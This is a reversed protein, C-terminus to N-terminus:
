TADLSRIEKAVSEVAGTLGMRQRGVESRREREHPDRLLRVVADAALEWNEVGILAEGLLRQQQDMFRRTYQAGPVPFAVVPKGRGAAQENATGALGVAVTASELASGYDRTLLVSMRGSWLHEGQVTWGQASAAHIVNSVQLSHPLACVFVARESAGVRQVAKLLRMLNALADGRSGPLLLVVSAGPPVSLPREPAPIADMMPNGAYRAPLGHDALTRATPEDRTWIAAARRMIRREIWRHSENYQSKATAVLLRRESALGAMWLCYVDGIAVAVSHKGRQGVLAARQARWHSIFGAFLDAALGSWSGRLGFGGSPFTCRPELLKIHSYANGTGVLPYASLTVGSATLRQALLAGVADEGHGNSVILVSM